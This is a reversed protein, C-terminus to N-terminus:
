PTVLNLVRAITTASNPSDNSATPQPLLDVGTVL